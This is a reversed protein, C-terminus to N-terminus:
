RNPLQSISSVYAKVFKEIDVTLLVECNPSKNWRGKWDCVSMGTTFEGKTEVEVRAKKTTFFEPHTVYMVAVVDHAPANPQKFTEMYTDIFCQSVGAIFQPITSGEVAQTLCATMMCLTPTVILKADSHKPDSDLTLYTSVLYFHVPL